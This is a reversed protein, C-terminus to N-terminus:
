STMESWIVVAVKRSEGTRRMAIPILTCYWLEMAFSVLLQVSDNYLAWAARLWHMSQIIADYPIEVSAFIRYVDEVTNREV